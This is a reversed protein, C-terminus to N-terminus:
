RNVLHSYDTPFGNVPFQIPVKFRIVSASGEEKGSRGTIGAGIFSNVVGLKGESGSTKEAKVSVEFEIVQICMIGRDANASNDALAPVITGDPTSEQADKVGEIIDLLATKVFSRLEM